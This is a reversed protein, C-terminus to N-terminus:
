LYYGVMENVKKTCKKQQYHLEYTSLSDGCYDEIKSRLQGKCDSIGVERCIAQFDPKKWDRTKHSAMQCYDYAIEDSAADGLEFCQDPEGLCMEDVFQTVERIGAAKGKKCSKELWSDWSNPTCWDDITEECEDRNLM